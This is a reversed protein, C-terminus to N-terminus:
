RTIENSRANFDVQVSRAVVFSDPRTPRRHAALPSVPSRNSGAQGRGNWPRHGPSYQAFGHGRKITKSARVRSPPQRKSMHRASIAAERYQPDVQTLSAASERRPLDASQPPEADQLFPEFSAAGAVRLASVGPNALVKPQMLWFLFFIPAFALALSSASLVLTTVRDKFDRISVRHALKM